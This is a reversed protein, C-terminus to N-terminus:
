LSSLTLSAPRRMSIGIQTKPTKLMTNPTQGPGMKAKRVAIPSPISYYSVSHLASHKNRRNDKPGHDPSCRHSGYPSDMLFGSLDRSEKHRDARQPKRDGRRATGARSRQIRGCPLCGAPEREHDGPDKRAAPESKGHRREPRRIGHDRREHPHPRRHEGRFIKGVLSLVQPAVAKEHQERQSRHLADHERRVQHCGEHEELHQGKSGKGPDNVLLRCRRDPGAIGVQEDGHDASQKEEHAQHQHVARGTREGKRFERLRESAGTGRRVAACLRPDQRRADQDKQSETGLGAHKGQVHPKGLGMRCRRRGRGRKQRTDQGLDADVPDQHCRKVHQGSLLSEAPDHQRRAHHRHKQAGKEREEGYVELACQRTGGHGLDTEDQCPDRCRHEHPRGATLLSRHRRERSGHLVHDVVGQEFQGQEHTRAHDDHVKVSQRQVVDAAPAPVFPRKLDGKGQAAQPDATNREEVSIDAFCQEVLADHLRDM